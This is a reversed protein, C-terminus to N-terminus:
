VQGAVVWFAIESREPGGTEQGVCPIEMANIIRGSEQHKLLM